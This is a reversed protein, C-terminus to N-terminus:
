TNGGVMGDDRCHAGVGSAHRGAWVVGGDGCLALEFAMRGRQARLHGDDDDVVQWGADPLATRYHGLVDVDGDTVVFGVDCGGVGSGGGGGFQVVHEVSEYAQQSERAARLYPSPGLEGQEDPSVCQPTADYQVNLKQGLAMPTVALMGVVMGVPLLVAALRMWRLPSVVFALSAVVVVLFLAITGVGMTFGSILGELASENINGYEATIGYHVLVGFGALGAELM